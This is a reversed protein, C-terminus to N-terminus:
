MAKQGQKQGQKQGVAVLREFDWVAGSRSEGAAKDLRTRLERIMEKTTGQRKAFMDILEEYVLLNVDQQFGLYSRDMWKGEFSVNHLGGREFTQGLQRPWSLLTLTFIDVTLHVFVYSMYPTHLLDQLREHLGKMEATPCEPQITDIRRNLLDYEGWQLYGGPEVFM